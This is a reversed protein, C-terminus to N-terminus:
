DIAIYDFSCSSNVPGANATAISFGDTSRNVYYNLSACNSGIPTIVIHPTQNFSNVFTINALIGAVTNSGFNIAVTGATDTGNISVTGGSGVGTGSYIGPTGGGAEIHRNLQLNQNLILQDIALSAASLAGSFSANGGVTLGNQIALMGQMTTNGSVSLDNAIEIDEFSSTGSVTIGSLNLSGGVHITGAVDLNDRILVQGNFVSNSAITLIQTADGVLTENNALSSLDDASLTQNSISTQASNKSAQYSAYSAIGTLLVILLFLLLYVNLKSILLQFKQWLGKKPMAQAIPAPVGNSTPTTNVGTAPGNAKPDNSTNNQSVTEVNELSSDKNELSNQNDEM